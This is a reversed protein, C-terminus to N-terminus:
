VQHAIGHISSDYARQCWRRRRQGRTRGGRRSCSAPPPRAGRDPRQGLQTGQAPRRPTYGSSIL